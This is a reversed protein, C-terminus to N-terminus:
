DQQGSELRALRERLDALQQATEEQASVTAQLQREHRKQRVDLRHIVEDQQAFKWAMAEFLNRTAEDVSALDAYDVHARGRRVSRVAKAQHKRALELKRETETVRYGANAVPEVSRLDIKLHERAARRMAMQIKHRDADPDLSLADGMAEYTVIEGTKAKVLLDYIYRWRAQDGQPTFPSM